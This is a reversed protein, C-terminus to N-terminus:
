IIDNENERCDNTELGQASRGRSEASRGSHFAGHDIILVRGDLVTELDELGGDSLFKKVLQATEGLKYFCWAKSFGDPLRM